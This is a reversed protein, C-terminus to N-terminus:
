WGYAPTLSARPRRACRFVGSFFCTLTPSASLARSEESQTRREALDGARLDLALSMLCTWPWRCRAPGLGAVDPLDLALSMLCTWPWRCRAPGLGAVDPLDLALSMLGAQRGPQEQERLGQLSRLGSEWSGLQTNAPGAEPGKKFVGSAASQLWTASSGTSGLSPVQFWLQPAAWSAPREWAEQKRRREPAALSVLPLGCACPGPDPEGVTSYVQPKLAGLGADKCWNDLTESETEEGSCSSRHVCSDGLNVSCRVGLNSNGPGGSHTGESTQTM